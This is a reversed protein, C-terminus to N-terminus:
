VLLMKIIIEENVIDNDQQPNCAQNLQDDTQISDFLMQLPRIIKVSKKKEYNRKLSGTNEENFLIPLDVNVNENWM